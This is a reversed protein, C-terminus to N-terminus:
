QNNLADLSEKLNLNEYADNEYEDAFEIGNSWIRHKETVLNCVVETLYPFLRGNKSNEIRVWAGDEKVAHKATVLVGGYWYFGQGIGRTTALVLGGKTEDGVKIKCIAKTSGNAMEIQTDPHFCFINAVTQVVDKAGTAVGSLANTVLKPGAINNLLEATNKLSPNNIDNELSSVGNTIVNAAAPIGMAGGIGGGALGAGVEIATNQAANQAALQAHQEDAGSQLASVYAQAAAQEQSQAEQTTNLATTYNYSNLNTPATGAQNATSQNILATPAQINLGNLLSQYAQAEQYQEPTAVNASTFVTNPDQQSLFGTLDINTTGTNAGWQGNASTVYQATAAAKDASSLSNWQASTMGLSALDSATPTGAALDNKIQTNQATANQQATNLEGSVGTNLANIQNTIAANSAQNAQTANAQQAAIQQDATNAGSSLNTLLNKFPQYANEVQGLASPSQSLIASNLATVGTTPSAENQSLLNERGAETTTAATGAAIANNINSQQTTYDSTGEASAPGAYSANLLNQFSKVNGPDSAFSVPNASEQSITDNYNTPTANAAIQSNIGSLTSDNQGQLSNYQSNIGTTLKGALPAAQDQNATLYQNLSGFQGGAGQPTPTNPTSAGAAGSTGGGSSGSASAVGGTPSLRVSGGGGIPSVAGQSANPQGGKEEENDDMNSVFAM